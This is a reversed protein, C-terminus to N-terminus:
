AIKLIQAVASVQKANVLSKMEEVKMEATGSDTRNWERLCLSM